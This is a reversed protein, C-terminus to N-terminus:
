TKNTKGLNHYITNLDLHQKYFEFITIENKRALNQISVIEEKNKISVTVTGQNKLVIKFKKPIIKILKEPNDSNIEYKNYSDRIKKVSGTFVVEGNKLVTINDVIQNLEFLIHSSIFVSVGLSKIKKLITFFDTRTDPDLNATPEDMVLVKPTILLSQILFIKKKEGSSLNEPNEKWFPSLNMFNEKYYLDIVKKSDKRNYGSVRAMYYLYSEVTQNSPFRTNEPIYSIQKKAEKSGAPFGCVTIRGSEVLYGGIISKITTTKGAGNKGIFGHITGPYVSFSVNKLVNKKGFKKSLNKVEIVPDHNPKDKLVPNTTLNKSPSTVTTKMYYM